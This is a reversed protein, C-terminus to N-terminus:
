QASVAVAEEVLIDAEPLGSTTPVVPGAWLSVATAFM